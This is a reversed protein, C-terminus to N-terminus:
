NKRRDLLLRLFPTAPPPTPPPPPNPTSSANVYSQPCPGLGLFLLYVYIYFYHEVVRVRKRHVDSHKLVGARFINPVRYRTEQAGTDGDFVLLCTLISRADGEGEGQGGKESERTDVLVM